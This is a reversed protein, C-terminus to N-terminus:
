SEKKLSNIQRLLDDIQLKYMDKVDDLDLKLEEYEEIKSGHM